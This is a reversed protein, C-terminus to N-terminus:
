EPFVELGGSSQQSGQFASLVSSLAQQALETRRDIADFRRALERAIEAGAVTDLVVARDRDAIRQHQGTMLWHLDCDTAEAVAVLLELTIRGGELVRKLQFTADPKLCDLRSDASQPGVSRIRDAIRARCLAESAKSTKDSAQARSPIDSRRAM